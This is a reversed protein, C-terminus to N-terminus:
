LVVEVDIQYLAKMLKCTRKFDRKEATPKSKVDVVHLRRDRRDFYSFDATYTNILIDNVILKFVPQCELHTIEGARELLKLDAYHRAERKSAFAINDVTTRVANYKNGGM